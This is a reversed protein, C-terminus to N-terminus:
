GIFVSSGWGLTFDKAKIADELRKVLWGQHSAYLYAVVRRLPFNNELLSKVKKEGLDKNLFTLMMTGDWNVSLVAKKNNSLIIKDAMIDGAWEPNLRIHTFYLEGIALQWSDVFRNLIYTCSGGLSNITKTRM